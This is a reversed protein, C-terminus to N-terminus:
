GRIEGAGKEGIRRDTFPWTDEVCLGAGPPQSRSLGGKQIVQDIVHFSVPWALPMGYRQGHRPATMQPWFKTGIPPKDVSM